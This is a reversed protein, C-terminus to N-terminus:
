AEGAPKQGALSLNQRDKQLQKLTAIQEERSLRGGKEVRALLEAIMDDVVEFVYARFDASM